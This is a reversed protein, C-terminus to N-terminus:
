GWVKTLLDILGPDFVDRWGTWTHADHNEVFQVDYGQRVLADRVVRNNDLNEEASGCTMSVPIAHQWEEVSLVQSVFRAIRRFRGFGSEHRDLRPRFFSGSQLFLAGFSAPYRRHVHFMSLAGLSAGMGIRSGRGHPTPAIEQLKPLIEHALARSYAASASYIEDRENPQLLAARMRPVKGEAILVDLLHTLGTLKAYEPGDHVVLLPLSETPAAGAASFLLGSVRARVSRSRLQFEEIRGGPADTSLWPPPEYGPFEIVSRDGFAGPARRPNAPDTIFERDGGAHVLELMYEMRGADPRPFHLVWGEARPARVFDLGWRPRVVDQHLKVASLHRDPDPFHFVIVDDRLEPENAFSEQRNM